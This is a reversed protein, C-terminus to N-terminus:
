VGKCIDAPLMEAGLLAADDKDHSTFLLTRGCLKSRIFDAVRQKAAEDLGAFPEDMIVAESPHLMARIVSLRRREGGSLDRAALATINDPLVGYYDNAGNDNIDTTCGAIDLNRVTNADEILREDQFVMSIRGIDAKGSDPQLIGAMMHLLTTKGSGSPASLCYIGGERLTFTADAVVRGAYSKRMSTVCIQRSGSNLAAGNRSVAQKMCAGPHRSIRGFLYLIVHGAIESLALIVIIWSFVGATNLYIKDRYLEEGISSAPLGIIEAAIGSKFGMALSVSMASHLHPIYAPRYIWLLKNISSIGFVDAMELLKGDACDLGTCMATYINPLVVMICICLVIYRSGWWILFIVVVAAVPVSKLFGVFPRLIQALFSYRRTAFALIYALATSVFFGSLVRLLTSLVSHWFNMTVIRGALEVATDKPSAFYIPNNVLMAALQWVLLWLGAVAAKKIVSNRM